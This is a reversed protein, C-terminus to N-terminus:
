SGIFFVCKDALITEGGQGPRTRGGGGAQLQRMLEEM